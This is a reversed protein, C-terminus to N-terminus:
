RCQDSPLGPACRGTTETQSSSVAMARLVQRGILASGILAALFLAFLLTRPNLRVRGTGRRLANRCVAENPLASARMLTSSTARLGRVQERCAACFWLNPVIAVQDAWGLQGHVHLLLRQGSGNCSM